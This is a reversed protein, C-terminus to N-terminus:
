QGFGNQQGRKYRSQQQQLFAKADAKQSKFFDQITSMLKEGQMSEDAALRDIFEMNEEHKGAHFAKLDEFDQDIRNLMRDKMATNANPNEDFRKSIFAKQEEHMQQRFASNKYYQETKFVKLEELIQDKSKGALSQMFIKGNRNLQDLYEQIKQQQQAKFQQMEPSGSGSQNMSTSRNAAAYSNVCLCVAWVFTGAVYLYRHVMKM